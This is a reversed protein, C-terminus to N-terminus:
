TRIHIVDGDALVYDRGETRLTGRDRAGSYGGADVLEDWAVVEARVFAKQIDGHVRGAAEFATGGRPLTRAMADKDTDATFFSILHLLDFAARILRQLGSREIGLENRMEEAEEPDLERLDAEIRASIV